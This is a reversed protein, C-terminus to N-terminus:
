CMRFLKSRKRTRKDKEKPREKDKNESIAMTWPMPIKRASRSQSTYDTAVEKVAAYDTLSAASVRHHYQLQGETKRMLFAIKVDDSLKLTTEQEYRSIEGGGGGPLWLIRSAEESWQLNWFEQSDVLM